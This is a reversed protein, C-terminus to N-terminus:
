EELVLYQPSPDIMVTTQIVSTTQKALPIGWTPALHGGHGGVGRCLLSDLHWIPRKCLFLSLLHHSNSAPHFNNGSVSLLYKLIVVQVSFFPLMSCILISALGPGTRATGSPCKAQDISTCGLHWNVEQSGLIAVM